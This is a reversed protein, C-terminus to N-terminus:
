WVGGLRLGVWNGGFGKNVRRGMWWRVRSGLNGM